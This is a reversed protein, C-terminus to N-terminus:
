STRQKGRQALEAHHDLRQNRAAVAMTVFAERREHSAPEAAFDEFSDCLREGASNVGVVGRMETQVGRQWAKGIHLRAVAAYDAAQARRRALVASFGAFGARMTLGAADAARSPAQERAHAASDARDDVRQRLPEALGHRAAGFYRRELPIAAARSPATRPPAAHGSGAVVQSGGGRM